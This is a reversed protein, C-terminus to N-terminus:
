FQFYLFPSGEGVVASVIIGTVLIIAAAAAWAPRPAWQIDPISWAKPTHYTDLGINWREFMTNINPLMVCILYGLAILGLHNMTVIPAAGAPPAAGLGFMAAFVRWAAGIGEARFFVWAVVVAFQTLLLALLAYALTGAFRALLPTRRTTAGWLHNIVLYLGHLGGWIIFTWGAGHWLGGLLMTTALNINRRAGGHRNGGLPIYLYDRLFRSLTIHWRRWFEVISRAKYPSNFNFPLVIGFMFSLGIAMDCYGSFDFYIQLSYALAGGWADMMAVDGKNALLFVPTAILAFGDAIVAKKFLGIGFVTLGIAIREASFRRSEKTGFQPMMESHHLIPGAILHPFYTVFLLYKAFNRESKYGGYVDALYAIQTFTFFSIGLPLIIHAAPIKLGAMQNLIDIGFNTYKYFSLALLNVGVAVALAALRRSAEAQREIVLGMCYNVVTSILVVPLFSVKWYAYFVLSAGALWLLPINPNPLARALLFYGALTIPLFVFIFDIQTFLM